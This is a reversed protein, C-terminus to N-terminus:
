DLIRVIILHSRHLNFNKNGLKLYYPCKPEDQFKYFELQINIKLINFFNSINTLDENLIENESFIYDDYMFCFNNNIDKFCVLNDINLNLNITSLYTKRKKYHIKKFLDITKQHFFKKLALFPDIPKNFDILNLRAKKYMYNFFTMEKIQVKFNIKDENVYDIDNIHGKM